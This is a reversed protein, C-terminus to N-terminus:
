SNRDPNTEDAATGGALSEIRAAAIHIAEAARAEIGALEDRIRDLEGVGVSLQAKTETLEDAVLLAGMLILRTDGLPGVDGSVQRVQSDVLAALTRLRSEQGDECGVVYPKSNVEITVQGM